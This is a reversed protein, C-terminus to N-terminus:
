KAKFQKYHPPIPISDSSEVVTTAIDFRYKRFMSNIKAEALILNDEVEENDDEIEAWVLVKSFDSLEFALKKPFANRTDLEKLYLAVLQEIFFQSTSARVSSALKDLKGAMMDIYMEKKDPPTTDTLMTLRDTEFSAVLEDFWNDIEEKTLDNSALLEM